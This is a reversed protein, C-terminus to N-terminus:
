YTERLRNVGNKADEMGMSYGDKVGQVYFAPVVRAADEYGGLYGTTYIGTYGYVVGFYTPVCLATTIAIVKLLRKM